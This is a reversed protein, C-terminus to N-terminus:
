IYKYIYKKNANIQMSNDTDTVIGASEAKVLPLSSIHLGVSFNDNLFSSFM